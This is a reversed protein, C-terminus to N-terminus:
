HLQRLRQGRCEDHMERESNDCGESRKAYGERASLHRMDHVLLTTDVGGLGGSGIDLTTFQRARSEERDTDTQRLGVELMTVVQEHVDGVGSGGVVSFMESDFFDMVEKGRGHFSDLSDRVPKALRANLFEGL